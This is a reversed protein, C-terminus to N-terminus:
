LADVIQMYRGKFDECHTQDGESVNLPLVTTPCPPKDKSHQRTIRKNSLGKSLISTSM